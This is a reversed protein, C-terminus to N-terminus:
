SYSNRCTCGPSLIKEQVARSAVMYASISEQVLHGPDFKPKPNEQVPNWCFGFCPCIVRLFSCMYMYLRVPVHVGKGANNGRAKLPGSGPALFYNIGDVRQCIKAAHMYHPRAYYQRPCCLSVPPVPQPPSLAASCGCRRQKTAM